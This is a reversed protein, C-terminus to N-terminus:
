PSMRFCFSLSPFIFSAMSLMYGSATVAIHLDQGPAIVNRLTTEDIAWAPPGALFSFQGQPSLLLIYRPPTKPIPRHLYNPELGDHGIWVNSVRQLVALKLIFTRTATLAHMERFM